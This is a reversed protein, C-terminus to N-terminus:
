ESLNKDILQLQLRDIEKHLEVNERLLKSTTKANLIDKRVTQVLVSGFVYIMFICAMILMIDFAVDLIIKVIEM